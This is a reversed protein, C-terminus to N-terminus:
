GITLSTPRMTAATSSAATKSHTGYLWITGAFVLQALVCLLVAALLVAAVMRGVLKVM